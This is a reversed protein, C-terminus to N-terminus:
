HRHRPATGGPALPRVPDTPPLIQHRYERMISEYTSVGLTRETEPSILVFHKRGPRRAFRLM